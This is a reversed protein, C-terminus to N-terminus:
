FRMFFGAGGAPFAWFLDFILKKDPNDENDSYLKFMFGADIFMGFHKDFNFERGARTELFIFKENFSERKKDQFYALGARGYWPRM